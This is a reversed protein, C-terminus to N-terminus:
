LSVTGRDDKGEKNMIVGMDKYRRLVFHTATSNVYRLTSLRKAVFLAVEKFTKGSLLVMFDYGGSMLYISEVEEFHMIENAITDFGEGMNPTVCIEIVASVKEDGLKEWNILTKYGCIIGDDELKNIKEAIEKDSLNLMASLQETTLRSNDALLKVIKEMIYVESIIKKFKIIDCKKSKKLKKIFLFDGSM